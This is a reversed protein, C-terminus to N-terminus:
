LPGGSVFLIPLVSFEEAFSVFTGDLPLAGRLLTRAGTTSDHVHQVRKRLHLSNSQILVNFSRFPSNRSFADLRSSQNRIISMWKYVNIDLLNTHTHTHLTTYHLTHLVWRPLTHYTAIATNDMCCMIRILTVGVVNQPPCLETIVSGTSRTSGLKFSTLRARQQGRGHLCEDCESRKEGVHVLFIVLCHLPGVQTSNLYLEKM